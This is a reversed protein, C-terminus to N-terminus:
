QESEGYPKGKDLIVDVDNTDHNQRWEDERHLM